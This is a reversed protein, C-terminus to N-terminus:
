EHHDGDDTTKPVISEDGYRATTKDDKDPYPETKELLKDDDEDEDDATVIGPAVEDRSDVDSHGIM